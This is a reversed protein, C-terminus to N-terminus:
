NIDAWTGNINPVTWEYSGSEIDEINFIAIEDVANSYIDGTYRWTLIIAVTGVKAEKSTAGSWKITYTNGAIFVEGGNPSIVEIESVISPQNNLSIFTILLYGVLIILGILLVLGGILIIKKMYYKFFFM